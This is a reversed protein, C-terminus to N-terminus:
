NYIASWAGSSYQLLVNIFFFVPYM